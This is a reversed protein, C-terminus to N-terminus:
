NKIFVGRRHLSNIKICNISIKIQIIQLFIKMEQKSQQWADVISFSKPLLSNLAVFLANRFNHTQKIRRRKNMADSVM